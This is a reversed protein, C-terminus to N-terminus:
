KGTSNKLLSVTLARTSSAVPFVLGPVFFEQSGTVYRILGARPTTLRPLPPTSTAHAITSTAVTTTAHLAALINSFNTEIPYPSATYRQLSIGTVSTVKQLKQDVSVLMGYPNGDINYVKEQDIILPFLVTATSSASNESWLVPSGYNSTNINHAQLFVNAVAVTDTANTDPTLPLDNRNLWTAPNKSIQITMKNLNMSVIYGFPKTEQVEIVGVSDNTNAISTMDTLEFGLSQINSLLESRAASSTDTEVVNATPKNLPTPVGVFLYAPSTTSAITTKVALAVSSTASSTASAASMLSATPLMPTSTAPSTTSVVTLAVTGFANQPKYSIEQQQGLSVLANDVQYNKLHNQRYLQAAYALPVLLVLAVATGLASSRFLNKSVQVFYSRMLFGVPKPKGGHLIDSRLRRVFADDVSFDPKALRLRKVLLRLDAEHRKFSADIAYLEALIEEISNM